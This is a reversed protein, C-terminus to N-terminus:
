NALLQQIEADPIRPCGILKKAIAQNILRDFGENGAMQSVSIDVAKGPRFIGSYMTVGTYGGYANKANLSFLVAWRVPRGDKMKINTPPCLVMDTISRPDRLTQRLAAVLPPLIADQAMEPYAAASPPTEAQATGSALLLAVARGLTGPM